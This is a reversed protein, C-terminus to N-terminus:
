RLAHSADCRACRLTQLAEEGMFVQAVAEVFGDTVLDLKTGLIDGGIRRKGFDIKEGPHRMMSSFCVSRKM